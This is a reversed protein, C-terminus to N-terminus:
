ETETKRKLREFLDALGERYTPYALTLGLTQKMLRNRVRKNDQYFSAAMPSLDANTIDTKPPAPCGLLQAAYTLVDQPPAPEDDCLNLITPLPAGENIRKRASFLAQAIDDVHMRSFVQGPKIIQRATQSQVTELASRNPGYIGPLRFITLPVHHADAFARWANEARLRRIGRPTTPQPKTTEDVWAGHHDGYVGNSSLYAIMRPKPWDDPAAAIMEEILDLAPCNPADNEIASDRPPAISILWDMNARLSAKLTRADKQNDGSLVLPLVRMKKIQDCKERQRTTGLILPAARDNPDGTFESGQDGQYLRRVFAQATYGFGLCALGSCALGSCPLGTM